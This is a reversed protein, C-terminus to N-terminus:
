PPMPSISSTGTWRRHRSALSSRIQSPVESIWRWMMVREIRLGSPAHARSLAPRRILTSRPPDASSHPARHLRASPHPLTRVRATRMPGRSRSPEVPRVHGIRCTPGARRLRETRRTFRTRHSRGPDHLPAARAHSGGPAEIELTQQVRAVHSDDTPPLGLGHRSLARSDTVPPRYPRDIRAALRDASVPAQAADVIKRLRGVGGEHRHRALRSDVGDCSQGRHTGAPRDAVGRPEGLGSALSRPELRRQDLRGAVEGQDTRVAIAEDVVEIPGGQPRERVPARTRAVAGGDDGLAAHEGGIEGHTLARHREREHGRDSILRHHGQGVADVDEGSKASHPGDPQVDLVNRVDGLERLRDALRHTGTDRHNCQLGPYRLDPRAQGDAM